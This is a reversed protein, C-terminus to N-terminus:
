DRPTWSDVVIRLRAQGWHANIRRPRSQGGDEAYEAYDIIWGNDSIRAPRGQADTELVTAGPPPIAQVWDALHDAPANVGLVHPLLTAADPAVLQQGDSTRLLAGDPTAIVHAVVQGLPSLVVWEDGQPRHVWRLRGSAARDGDSAALRGELDFATIRQREVLEARERQHPQLACGTVFLVVAATAALPRIM